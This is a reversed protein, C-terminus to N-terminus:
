ASGHAETVIAHHVVGKGFEKQNAVTFGCPRGAAFV